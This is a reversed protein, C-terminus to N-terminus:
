RSHRVVLRRCLSGAVVTVVGLGVLWLLGDPLGTSALTGGSAAAPVGPSAGAGVTSASAGNPATSSVTSTVPPAGAGESVATASADVEFPASFAHVGSTFAQNYDVGVWLVCFDTADCDINSTRFRASLASITYRVSFKGASDVNVPLPNVTAGDCTTPDSPLNTVVGKPDSCEILQLGSPDKAPAPFGSGSVVISAGDSFPGNPIAVAPGSAFARGPWLAALAAGCLLCAGLWHTAVGFVGRASGIAPATGM